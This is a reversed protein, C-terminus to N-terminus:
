VPSLAGSPSNAYRAGSRAALTGLLLSTACSSEWIWADYHLSATLTMSSGTQPHTKRKSLWEPTGHTAQPPALPVPPSLTRGYTRSTTPNVCRSTCRSTIHRTLIACKRNMPICSSCGPQNNFCATCSPEGSRFLFALIAGFANENSSAAWDEDVIGDNLM